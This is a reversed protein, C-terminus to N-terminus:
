EGSTVPASPPELPALDWTRVPTNVASRYADYPIGAQMAKIRMEALFEGNDGMWRLIDAHEFAKRRIDDPVAAWNALVFNFRWRILEQSCLPCAAMSQSLAELTAANVQKAKRSELYAQLAWAGARSEDRRTARVAALLAHETDQPEIQLALEALTELWSASARRPWESALDARIAPEDAQILSWTSLERSAFAFVPIVTVAASLIVIVWIVARATLAM